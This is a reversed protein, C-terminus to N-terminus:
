EGKKGPVFEFTLSINGSYDGAHINERKLYLPYPEIRLKVEGQGDQLPFTKMEGSQWYGRPTPFTSYFWLGIGKGSGETQLIPKGQILVNEAKYTAKVHVETIEKPCNIKITHYFIDGGVVAARDDDISTEANKAAKIIDAMTYNKLKITGDGDSITCPRMNIQQSYTMTGSLPAANLDASTALSSLLIIFIVGSFLWRKKKM